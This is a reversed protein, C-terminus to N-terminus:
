RNNDKEAERYGFFFGVGAPIVWNLTDMLWSEVGKFYNFLSCIVFLVITWGLTNFIRKGM